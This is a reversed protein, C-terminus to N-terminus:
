AALPFVALDVFDEGGFLAVIGVVRRFDEIKARAHGSAHAVVGKCDAQDALGMGPYRTRRSWSAGSEKRAAGVPDLGLELLKGAADLGRPLPRM